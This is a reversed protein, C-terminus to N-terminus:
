HHFTYLTNHFYIQIEHTCKNYMILKHEVVESM